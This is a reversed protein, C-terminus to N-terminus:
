LRSAQPTRLRGAGVEDGWALPGEPYGLRVQVAAEIDAVSAIGRQAINSAINVITAIVRQAIFGPSDNIVGAAVRPPANRKQPRDLIVLGVADDRRVVVPSAADQTESV